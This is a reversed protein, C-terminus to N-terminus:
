QKRKLENKNQNQDKPKIKELIQDNYRLTITVEYLKTIEIRETLM